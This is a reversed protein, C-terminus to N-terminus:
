RSLIAVNFGNTAIQSSGYSGYSLGLYSGFYDLIDISGMEWNSAGVEQLCLFDVPFTDNEHKKIEDVMAESGFEYRRNYGLHANYTVINLEFSENGHKAYDYSYVDDVMNSDGGFIKTLASFIDVTKAGERHTSVMIGIIALIFLLFMTIGHLGSMFLHNSLRIKVLYRYFINVIKERRSPEVTKVINKNKGEDLSLVDNMSAQRSNLRSESLVAVAASTLTFTTNKKGSQNNNNSLGLNLQLGQLGIEREEIDEFMRHDDEDYDNVYNFFEINGDDDGGMDMDELDPDDEEQITDTVADYLNYKSSKGQEELIAKQAIANLIKGVVTSQRKKGLKAQMRTMKVRNPDTINQGNNALDVDAAQKQEQQQQTDEETQSLITLQRLRNNQIELRQEKRKKLQLKMRKTAKKVIKKVFLYFTMPFFATFCQFVLFNGLQISFPKAGFVIGMVKLMSVLIIGISLGILLHLHPMVLMKAIAININTFLIPSLIMLIFTCIQSIFLITENEVILQSKTENRDIQNIYYPFVLCFTWIIRISTFLFVHSTAHQVVKQTLFMVFFTSILMSILFLNIFPNQQRTDTFCRRYLSVPSAPFQVILFLTSLVSINTLIQLTVDLRPKPRSIKCKKRTQARSARRSSSGKVFNENFVDFNLHKWVYSSQLALVVVFFFLYVFCVLVSDFVTMQVLFDGDHCVVKAAVFLVEHIVSLSLSINQSM